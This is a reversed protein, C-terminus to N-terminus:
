GIPYYTAHSSQFTAWAFVHTFRVLLHFHPKYLVFNVMTFYVFSALCWFYM